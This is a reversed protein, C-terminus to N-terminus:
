KNNKARCLEELESVTKKLIPHRKNPAIELLPELVFDRKHMEIHPIILRDTELVEDDYLLIDLDLTRPGWHVKRERHAAQEIIHLADLLEEPFFTDEPLSM